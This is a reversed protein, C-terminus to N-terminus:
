GARGPLELTVRAGGLPSAGIAVRGGHLRAQQDVLALGLGSGPGRAGRGRVFRSLVRERDTEPIGPGDDDVILRVVDDGRELAVTIKLGGHVAANELVNRVALELGERWAELEVAEEGGRVDVAIKAHRQQLAYVEADALDGLDLRDRVRDAAADGAALAQLADLLAVVRQQQAAVDALVRRREGAPLDPNARLVDLNAHISTLPTRLEHGAAAAFSRSSELAATTIRASAELRQLMDNLTAALGAVEEPGDAPIRVGLDRTAAVRHAAARLRALPRLAAAGFLWGLLAAVVLAFMGSRVIRLRVFSITRRSSDLPVAVQLRLRQGDVTGSLPRTYTRWADGRPSVTSYGREPAPPLPAAPLDGVALLVKDGALVRANVAAAMVRGDTDLQFRAGALTAADLTRAVLDARRALTADVDARERDVVDALLTAGAVAVVLAVAAAAALAVRARLSVSM